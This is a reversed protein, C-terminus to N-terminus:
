NRQVGGIPIYIELPPSIPRALTITTLLDMGEKRFNDQTTALPTLGDQFTMLKRDQSTGQAM